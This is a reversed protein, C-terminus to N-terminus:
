QRDSQPSEEKEKIQECSQFGRPGIIEQLLVGGQAAGHLDVATKVQNRGQRRYAPDGKASSNARRSGEPLPIRRLGAASSWCNM